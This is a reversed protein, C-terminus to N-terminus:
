KNVEVLLREFRSLNAKSVKYTSFLQAAYKKAKSLDEKTKKMEASTLYVGNPWKKDRVVRELDHAKQIADPYEKASREMNAKVEPIKTQFFLKLEGRVRQPQGWEDSNYATGDVIKLLQKFKALNVPFFQEMDIHLYGTDWHVNLM